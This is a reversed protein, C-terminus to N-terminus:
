QQCGLAAKAPRRAAGTYQARAEREGVGRSRLIGLRVVAGVAEAAGAHAAEEAVICEGIEDPEGVGGPVAIVGRRVEAVLQLLKRDVVLLAIVRHEDCEITLVGPLMVGEVAVIEQARQIRLERLVRAELEGRERLAERAANLRRGQWPHTGAAPHVPRKRGPDSIRRLVTRPVQEAIGLLGIVARQPLHAVRRLAGGGAPLECQALARVPEPPEPVVVRGVGHTLEVPEVPSVPCVATNLTLSGTKSRRRAPTSSGIDAISAASPRPPRANMSQSASAPNETHCIRGTPGTPASREGYQTRESKAPLGAKRSGASSGWGCAGM